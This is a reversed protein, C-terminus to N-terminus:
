PKGHHEQFSGYCYLIEQKKHNDIIKMCLVKQFIDEAKRHHGMEAYMEALDVYGLEFTPKLMITKEFKCIALLVLRDVNERNQGRPQRNTVEKIQIIQAKYCLGIQHHLFASTPTAQLAMKLLQLAKDVSGKRRYFKAAYRLIYTQSSMSTLAEEIYKEGEAEQGKDQLKLALLVKIYGNDPNLRVARKLAHLSFAENRETATNFGDLHHVTIAYGTCFESNEPNVELAKKFCAKAWEYLIREEVFIMFLVVFNPLPYQPKHNDRRACSAARYLGQKERLTEVEFVGVRLGEQSYEQRYDWAVKELRSDISSSLGPVAQEQKPAPLSKDGYTALCKGPDQGSLSDEDILM